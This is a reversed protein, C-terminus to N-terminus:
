RYTKVEAHMRKTNSVRYRLPQQNDVLESNVDVNLRYETGTEDVSKM